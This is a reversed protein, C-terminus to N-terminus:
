PKFIVKLLSADPRSLEEFMAQGEALPATTVWGEIKLRGDAIWQAAAQFEARSYGYSGTLRVERRIMDVFDVTTDVEGLGALVITGGSRVLKLALQRAPAFGAADFVVNCGDDGFFEQLRELSDSEKPNVALAAGHALAEERRRPNPEVVAIRHCGRQRAVELVLLGISGAGIIAAPGSKDAGSEVFHIANALPEVMAGGELGVNAALPYLNEVPVRLYEAFGGAIHMGYLKRQRCLAERGIACYGCHGCGVLPYIAVVDGPKARDGGDAVRKVVGAMEHGLVLPPVRGPSHGMWGHVDSGCVGVANVRVLADGGTLEPSPWDRMELQRLATYVMAKM